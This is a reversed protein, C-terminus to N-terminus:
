QKSYTISNEAETLGYGWMDFKTSSWNTISRKDEDGIINGSEPNYEYFTITLKNNYTDQIVYYCTSKGSINTFRTDDIEATGFAFIDGIDYTYIPYIQKPESYPTFKITETYWVKDTNMLYFVGKYSGNLTAWLEQVDKSFKPTTPNDNSSCAIFATAVIAFLIKKM